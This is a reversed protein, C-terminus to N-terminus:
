GTPWPHVECDGPMEKEKVEHGVPWWIKKTRVGWTRKLIKMTEYGGGQGLDEGEGVQILYSEQTELAMTM